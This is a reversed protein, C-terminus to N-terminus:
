TYINILPTHLNRSNHVTYLSINAATEDEVRKGLNHTFNMKDYDFMVYDYKPSYIVPPFLKTLTQFFCIAFIVM